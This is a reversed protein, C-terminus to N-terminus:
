AFRRVVVTDNQGGFGFSNSLCVDVGGSGTLDRASNPVYDLDLDHDPQQYNVTPPLMGTRIAQVCTIFEVVGAAQILHGMMSKISSVAVRRAQGAFAQKIARTEISDNEKTGTGHASVYDVPPRGDERPEAPNIGAQRLAALMATLPGKGEPHMDTIRFADASSGYGALEALPTAGRRQASELSELVVIGAGEGMVFGDRTQDFPRAATQPSERRKSMATLRIFGTMGLTHIMSHAGGALMADADGRRILEFAEGIAQTSAACATMCNFSPGRCGFASALHSLAANPEQELERVPSMAAYAARAWAPDDLSRTESNWGGLNATWFNEYDLSGEGAGLYMGIRRGDLGAPRQGPEGLGAQRWAQSAAALAMRTGIGAAAHRACLPGDGLHDALRFDKVEAAFNTTFSAADFRTVPGIANEGALLRPWARPIDHGLPTIWGMGTVVVRRTM